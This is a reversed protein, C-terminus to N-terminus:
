WPVQLLYLVRFSDLSGPGTILHDLLRTDDPRNHLTIIPIRRGDGYAGNAGYARSWRDSVIATRAVGM